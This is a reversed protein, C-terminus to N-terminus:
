DLMNPCSQYGVKKLDDRLTRQTVGIRHKSKLTRCATAIKRDNGKMLKRLKARRKKKQSTRTNEKRPGTKRRLTGALRKQHYAVDSRSCGMKKAIYALSWGCEKKVAILAEMMALGKPTLYGKGHVGPLPEVRKAKKVAKTEDRKAAAEVRQPSGSGAVKARTM